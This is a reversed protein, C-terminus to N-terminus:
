RDNRARVRGSELWEELEHRSFIVTKQGVRFHPIAGRGVQSYLASRSLGTVDQALGYGGREDELKSPDSIRTQQTM